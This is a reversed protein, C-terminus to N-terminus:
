LLDCRACLYPYIYITVQSVQKQISISTKKFYQKWMEEGYRPCATGLKNRCIWGQVDELLEDIRIDKYISM